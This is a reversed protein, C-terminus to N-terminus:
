LALEMEGKEGSNVLRAQIDDTFGPIEENTSAGSFDMECKLVSRSKAM